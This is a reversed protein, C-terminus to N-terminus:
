LCWIGFRCSYNKWLKIFVSLHKTGYWSGSWSQRLKTQEVIKKV